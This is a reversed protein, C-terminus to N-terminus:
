KNLLKKYDENESIIDHFVDLCFPNNKKQAEKIAVELGKEKAIGLLNKIDDKILRKKDEEIEKDLEQRHQSADVLQPTELERERRKEVVNQTIGKEINESQEIQWEKFAEQGLERVNIKGNNGEKEM